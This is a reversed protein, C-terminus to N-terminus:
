LRVGRLFIKSPMGLGIDAWSSRLKDLLKDYNTGGTAVPEMGVSSSDFVLPWTHGCFETVSRLFLGLLMGITVDAYSTASVALHRHIM